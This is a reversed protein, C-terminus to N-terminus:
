NIGKDITKQENSPRLCQGCICCLLGEPWYKACSPCQARASVEGLEFLEIKRLSAITRRVSRILEDTKQFVTIMPKRPAGRTHTLNQIMSTRGRDELVAKQPVGQVRFVIKFQNEQEACMKEASSQQQVRGEDHQVQWAESSVIKPAARPTPIRQYM